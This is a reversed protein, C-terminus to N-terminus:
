GAGAASAREDDNASGREIRLRSRGTPAVREWDVTLVDVARVPPVFRDWDVRVDEIPRDRFSSPLHAEAYTAALAEGVAATM